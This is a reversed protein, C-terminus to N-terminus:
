QQPFQSRLLKDQAWPWVGLHAVQMARARGGEAAAARVAAWRKARPGRGVVSSGLCPRRGGPLPAPLPSATQPGQVWCRIVVFQVPFNRGKGDERLREILSDPLFGCQHCDGKGGRVGAPERQPWFCM